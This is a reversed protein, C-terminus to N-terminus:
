GSLGVAIRSGLLQGGPGCVEKPNGWGKQDGRVEGQAPSHRIGALAGLNRSGSM